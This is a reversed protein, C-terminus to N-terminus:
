EYMEEIYDDGISNIVSFIDTLWEVALAVSVPRGKSIKFVAGDGLVEDIYGTIENIAAQISKFDDNKLDSYKVQIEMIKNLVDVDSKYILFIDGNIEIEQFEPMKLVLKKKTNMKIMIKNLFIDGEKLKKVIWLCVDLEDGYICSEM